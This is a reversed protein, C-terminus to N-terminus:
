AAVSHAKLAESIKDLLNRLAEESSIKYAKACPEGYGSENPCGVYASHSHLNKRTVQNICDSVGEIAKCYESKYLRPHVAVKFYKLDGKPSFGIVKDIFVSQEYPEVRLVILKDYFDGYHKGSVPKWGFAGADAVIRDRMVRIMKAM